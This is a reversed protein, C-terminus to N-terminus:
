QGLKVYKWGKEQKLVIEAIGAKVFMSFTALESKEIKRERLTNECVVMEVKKQQQLLELEKIFLGKDILLADVGRGHFVLRIQAKPLAQTLNNLNKLLGKQALSDSQTFQLIIKHKKHSLAADQAAAKETTTFFLLCSLLWFIRWTNPRIKM